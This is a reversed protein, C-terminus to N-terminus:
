RQAPWKRVPTAEPRPEASARTSCSAAAVAQRSLVGDDCSGDHGDAAAVAEDAGLGGLRSAGGYPDVELGVAHAGAFPFRGM